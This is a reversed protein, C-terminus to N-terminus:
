ITAVWARAIALGAADADSGNRTIEGDLRDNWDPHREAILSAFSTSWDRVMPTDAEFHFQFGYVARGLRFAQNEAVASGALRVANQPLVFTDDHWEFIPFNEPLAALVPDTKAAPTLSVQHWGFETAGGIQNEGGFARALLQGGLCIGLVSRDRDAFDRTLDLLEPFYPCLEDDLANQAGGLVVMADHEGSHGPLAEGNCPKRLDIDAGAEVLAAGIQGLGENDFNQVVLVRM